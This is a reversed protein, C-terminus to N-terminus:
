ADFNWGHALVLVLSRKIHVLRNPVAPRYTGLPLGKTRLRIYLLLIKIHTKIGDILADILDIETDQKGICLDPLVLQKLFFQLTIAM